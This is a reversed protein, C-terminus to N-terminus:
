ARLSAGRRIRIRQAIGFGILLLGPVPSFTSLEMRIRLQKCGPVVDWRDNCIPVYLVALSWMNMTYLLGLITLGIGWTIPRKM